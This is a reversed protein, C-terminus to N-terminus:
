TLESYGINNVFAFMKNPTHLILETIRNRYSGKGCLFSSLLKFVFDLNEVYDQCLVIFHLM